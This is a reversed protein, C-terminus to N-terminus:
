SVARVADTQSPYVPWLTDLGTARLIALEGASVNCLAMRGDRDRVRKWLKLFFSLATSGSYHVAQLDVVVNIAGGNALRTLIPQAQAEIDHFLLEGLDGRPVVILTQGAQHLDFLQPHTAPEPM